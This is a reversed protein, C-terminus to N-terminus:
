SADDNQVSSQARGQINAIVDQWQQAVESFEYKLTDALLVHDQSQLAEKVRLLIAMPKNVVDVLPEGGVLATQPDIELM